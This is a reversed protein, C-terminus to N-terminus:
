FDVYITGYKTRVARGAPRPKRSPRLPSYIKKQREVKGRQRYSKYGDERLVRKISNITQPSVNLEESIKKLQKGNDIREMVAARIVFNHKEYSTALLDLLEM